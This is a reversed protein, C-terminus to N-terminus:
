TGKASSDFLPARLIKNDKNKLAGKNLDLHRLCRSKFLLARTGNLDSIIDTDNNNIIKKTLSYNKKLRFIYNVEKEMFLNHLNKSYYGRDMIVTDNKNLLKLQEVLINREGIFGSSFINSIPSKNHINILSGYRSVCYSNNYVNLKYGYKNVKKNLNIQSSDAALYRNNIGKNIYNIINNNLLKFYTLVEIKERKAGRFFQCPWNKLSAKNTLQKNQLM